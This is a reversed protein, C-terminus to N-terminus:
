SGLSKVRFLDSWRRLTADTSYSDAIKNQGIAGMSSARAPDNLLDVIRSGLTGVDGLPALFGDVGNNILDRPGYPCDYAVVPTGTLMSEIVAFPLGETRSPLITATCRATEMAVETSYGRFKVCNALGHVEIEAQIEKLYAASETPVSGFIHLEAGPHARVVGSWARVADLHGKNRFVSAFLGVRGPITQVVPTQNFQMTNPITHIKEPHGTETAVDARQQDTLTLIGDFDDIREFYDQYYDKLPAGPSHPEAAYHNSHVVAYLRCTGKPVKLLNPMVFRGDALVIPPKRCAAFQERIWATRWATFSSYRVATEQGRTFRYVSQGKGTEPDYWRVFYCFGDATLYRERNKKGRLYGIERHLVGDDDFEERRCIEKDDNFHDIFVLRSRDPSWKKYKAYTGDQNFYRAYHKTEIEDAQVLYGAETTGILVPDPTTSTELTNAARAEEFPNNVVVDPHIRARNGVRAAPGSGYDLTMIHSKHGANAFM